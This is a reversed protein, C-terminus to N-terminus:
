SNIRDNHEEENWNIMRGEEDETCYVIDTGANGAHLGCGHCFQNYTAQVMGVGVDVYESGDHMVEGCRACNDGPKYWKNVPLWKRRAIEERWRRRPIGHLEILDMNM